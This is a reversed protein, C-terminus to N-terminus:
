KGTTEFFKVVHIIKLNFCIQANQQVFTIGDSCKVCSNEINVCEIM